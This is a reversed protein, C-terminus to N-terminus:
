VKQVSCCMPGHLSHAGVKITISVEILAGTISLLALDQGLPRLEWDQFPMNAYLDQMLTFTYFADMSFSLSRTSEDYLVESICDDIKWHQDLPVDHADSIGNSLFWCLSWICDNKERIIMSTFANRRTHNYLMVCTLTLNTFPYRWPQSEATPM